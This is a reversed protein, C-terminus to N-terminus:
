DKNWTTIEVLDLNHHILLITAEDYQRVFEAIRDARRKILEDEPIKTSGYNKMVWAADTAIAEYKTM